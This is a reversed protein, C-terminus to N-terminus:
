HHHEMPHTFQELVGRPGQRFISAIFMLGLLGLAIFALLSHSELEHSYPEAMTQLSLWDISWGAIVALGTVLVGFSIATRKSHLTSLVGFTTINTAPGALLFALAAGPSVGNFIAIAAIPTAGSACVYLPIGILAFLPVQLFPSIENLLGDSLIPDLWAAIFLGALIWPMTHDFLEFLGFHLGSKLREWLSGEKCLCGEVGSRYDSNKIADRANLLCAEHFRLM